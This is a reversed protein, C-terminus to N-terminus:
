NCLTRPCTYQRELFVQYAAKLQPENELCAARKCIRKMYKEFREDQRSERFETENEQWYANMIEAVSEACAYAMDATFDRLDTGEIFEILIWKADGWESNGYYNPVPFKKGALLKEYVFIESDDSKKLVYPIGDINLKYVQYRNLEGEGDDCFQEATVPNVIDRKLIDAAPKQFPVNSKTVTETYSGM